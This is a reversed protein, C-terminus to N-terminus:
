RSRVHIPTLASRAPTTCPRDSRTCDPWQVTSASRAVLGRRVDPIPGHDDPEIRRVSNAPTPLLRTSREGPPVDRVEDPAASRRSGQPAQFQEILQDDHSPHAWSTDSWWVDVEDWAVIDRVPRETLSTVLDRTFLDSSVLLSARSGIAQLEVLHTVLRATVAELLLNRDRVVFVERATM